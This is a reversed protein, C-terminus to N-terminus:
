ASPEATRDAVRGTKGLVRWRAAVIRREGEAVDVPHGPQHMALQGGHEDSTETGEKKLHEM